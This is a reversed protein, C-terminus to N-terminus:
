IWMPKSRIMLDDRGSPHDRLYTFADNREVIYTYAKKQRPSALFGSVFCSHHTSWFYGRLLTFIALICKGDWPFEPLPYVFLDEYYTTSLSQTAMTKQGILAGASPRSRKHSTAANLFFIATLYILLKMKRYFPLKYIICCWITLVYMLVESSIAKVFAAKRDSPCGLAM